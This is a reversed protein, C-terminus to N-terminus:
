SADADGVAGCSTQSFVVCTALFVAPATCMALESVNLAVIVAHAMRVYRQNKADAYPKWLIVTSLVVVSLGLTWMVSLVPDKVVFALLVFAWKRAILVAEFLYRVWM